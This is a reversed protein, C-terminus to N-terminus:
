LQLVFHNLGRCQIGRDSREEGSFHSPLVVVHIEDMLTAGHLHIERIAFKRNWIDGSHTESERCTQTFSDHLM